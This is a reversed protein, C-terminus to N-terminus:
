RITYPKISKNNAMLDVHNAYKGFFDFFVYSRNIIEVELELEYQSLVENAGCKRRKEPERDVSVVTATVVMLQGVVVIVRRVVTMM